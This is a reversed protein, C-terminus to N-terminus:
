RELSIEVRRNSARGEATANSAIPDVSGRGTVAVTRANLGHAKLYGAVAQARRQSLTLNSADNGVSDTYGTVSVRTFAADGQRALLADLSALATPTLTALGTAFLADGALNVHEVAAPAAAVPSSAPVPAAAEPAGCQFVLTAPDTGDRLAKEADVARVPQDGCIRRAAKMCTNPGSLIGHCDVRYTRVGDRPQLESASFTPGSTTSCAALSFAFLALALTLKNM